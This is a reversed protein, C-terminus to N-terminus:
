QKKKEETETSSNVEEQEPLELNAQEEEPSTMTGILEPAELMEACLVREKVYVWFHNGPCIEDSDMLKGDLILGILKERSIPGLIKKDFTRVLWNKKMM